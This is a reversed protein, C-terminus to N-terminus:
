EACYKCDFAMEAWNSMDVAIVVKRRGSLSMEAANCICSLRLLQQNRTIEQQIVGGGSQSRLKYNAAEVCDCSAHTVIGPRITVRGHRCVGFNQAFIDFRKNGFCSQDPTLKFFVPIVFSALWSFEWNPIPVIIKSIESELGAISM